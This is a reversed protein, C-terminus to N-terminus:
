KLQYTASSPPLTTGIPPAAPTFPVVVNTNPAGASDAPIQFFPLVDEARIDRPTDDPLINVPKGTSPPLPEPKPPEPEPKVEPKVPEAVVPEPVPEPAITPKSVPAPREEAEPLPPSFRFPSPGVAALYGSSTPVSTTSRSGSSLSYNRQPLSLAWAPQALAACAGILLCRRLAARGSLLTSFFFTM